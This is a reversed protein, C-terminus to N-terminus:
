LAEIAYEKEFLRSGYDGEFKLQVKFDGTIHHYTCVAKSCTGLKFTREYSTGFSSADDEPKGTGSTGQTIGEKTDYSIDYDISTTGAPIGEVTLKMDQQPVVTVLDVKVEPGVTPIIELSEDQLMLKKPTATPAPTRMMYIGVGILILVIVAGAGMMIKKNKDITALDM